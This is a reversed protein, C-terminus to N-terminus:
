SGLFTLVVKMISSCWPCYLPELVCDRISGILSFYAQNFILNVLVVDVGVGFIDM